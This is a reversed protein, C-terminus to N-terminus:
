YRKSFRSPPQMPENRNTWYTDTTRDPRLPLPPTKWFLRRVIAVPTLVLYYAIILVISTNVKGITKAVKIWLLYLPTMLGPLLAFLIAFILLTGFFIVAGNWGRWTTFATMLGFFVMGIFGFRRIEWLNISSSTM